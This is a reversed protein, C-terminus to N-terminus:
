ALLGAGSARREPRGAAQYRGPPQHLKVAGMGTFKRYRRVAEETTPWIEAPGSLASAVAAFLRALASGSTGVKASAPIAPKSV